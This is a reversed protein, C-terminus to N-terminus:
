GCEAWNDCLGSAEAVIPLTFVDLGKLTDCYSKVRKRAGRDKKVAVDFEDHVCLFIRDDNGKLLKDLEIWWWKLVNGACGQCYYNVGKYQESRPVYYVAGFDDLIYGRSAIINSVTRQLASFVPFKKRITQYINGCEQKSYPLAFKDTLTKHFTDIGVGYQVGLCGHKYAQYINDKKSVNGHGTCEKVVHLYINFKDSKRYQESFWDEGLFVSMANAGLRAEISALDIKVFKFGPPVIFATRIGPGRPLNQVNGKTITGDDSYMSQSRYRRTVAASQMMNPHFMGEKNVVSLINKAYTNVLKQDTRIREVARVADDDRWKRLTAEDSKTMDTKTKDTEGLETLHDRLAHGTPSRGKDVGLLESAQKKNRRIRRVGLQSFKKLYPVDVTIGNVEMDMNLRICETDMQYAYNEAVTPYFFTALKATQHVDHLCYKHVMEDPPLTMDFEIDDEGPLKNEYLWERLDLLCQYTDGFLMWSLNKLSYSPLDNKYHKAMLMTDHVTGKVKVKLRHELIYLDFSANHMVINKAIHCQTGLGKWGFWDNFRGERFSTDWEFIIDGTKIDFESFCVRDVTCAYRNQSSTEIDISCWINDESKM